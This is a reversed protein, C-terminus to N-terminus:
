KPPNEDEGGFKITSEAEFKRYGQFRMENRVHTADTVMLVNAEVPLLYAQSGITVQDYDITTAISKTQVQEPISATESTIHWVAGSEPDGYVSGHYPVIAKALDSLSLSLTSHERDVSYNFKAVRHGRVTDWGDWSFKAETVPDFINALLIGFEGETTLPTRWPRGNFHAPKNNVLELTRQERGRNFVLKSTLTDGKKWHNPKRGAEFQSTVQECIFNPLKATYDEAYNRMGLLTQEQEAQSPTENMQPHASVQEQPHASGALACAGLCLVVISQKAFRAKSM